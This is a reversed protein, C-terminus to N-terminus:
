SPTRKLRAVAAAVLVLAALATVALGLAGLAAIPALPIALTSTEDGFREFRQALLAMRWSMFACGVIAVLAIVLDRVAAVRGKMAAEFLGVTVHEGRLTVIPLTVFVIAAMALQTLEYAGDLPRAFLYRGIVDVTTMAMMTFLLIAAVTGLVREAVAIVPVTPAPGPESKPSDNMAPSGIRGPQGGPRM